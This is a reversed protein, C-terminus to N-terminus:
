PLSLRRKSSVSCMMKTERWQLLRRLGHGQHDDVYGDPWWWRPVVIWGGQYVDNGHQLAAKCFLLHLSQLSSSQTKAWSVAAADAAAAAAALQVCLIRREKRQQRVKNVVLDPVLLSVRCLVYRADHLQQLVVNASVQNCDSTPTPLSCISPCLRPPSGELALRRSQRGQLDRRGKGKHRCEVDPSM